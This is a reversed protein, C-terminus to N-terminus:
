FQVTVGLLVQRPLPTDFFVHNRLASDSLDNRYMSEAELGMYEQWRLLNRGALTLTAAGAGIPDVFRSPLTYAVSVERLKWFDAPFVFDGQLLNSARACNRRIIEDTPDQCHLAVQAGPTAVGQGDAPVARPQWLWRLTHSHLYNGGRHDFLINATLSPGFSFSSGLQITRTPLAPGIYDWGEPLTGDPNRLLVSALDVVGDREIFRDGFFSGVPYGERHFQRWQLQIPAADEGLDVIRNRNTTINSFAHWRFNQTQLLDARVGLEIGENSITGINELQPSLVGQSPPYRFNYLADVTRQNYYTFEFNLRENLVGLDFGIEREHTVEPGLNPNGINAPTVAPQGGIASVASWTRVADFTGPQQGATGYAARLRLTGIQHPWFAHESVVYSADVKPYVAYGVDEGFASHADARAGGTLFFLNAFGLQQELFFGATREQLRGETGWRSATAGVTALGHFPFESGEVRSSNLNRDFYQLGGQTTASVLETLQTRFTAAYDVNLNINERRYNHRTGSLLNNIVGYPVYETEDSSFVDAGFTLRHSFPTFPSHEVTLGGTFRNGRQFGEIATHAMTPTGWNGAPGGILGNITYGRTNNADPVHQVVRRSFGSNLRITVDHRPNLNFNLRGAYYDEGSNPLIGNDGRMTGSAFYGFGEGGGTVSLTHTQLDGTQVMNDYFWDSYESIRWYSRPTHQVGFESRLNWRPAHNQGQRTFIQIVGASAETGYLTAAAAGRVIEVRAIDAPNIDDLGSWSAGTTVVNSVGGASSNDVRVGDVYIIPENRQSISGAGRLVIRSGQGAKGGGPLVNVGPARAQLMQSFNQIPAAELATADVSAIATGVERRATGAAQGTVVVEDLAVASIALQVDLRVAEGAAVTVERTESRFGISSVRIQQVGAPVNTLQFAGRADTLTGRNTGVIQVQANAIPQGTQSQVRGAVVGQTASQSAAEAVAFVTCLLLFLVQRYYGMNM